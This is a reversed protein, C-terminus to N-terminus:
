AYLCTTACPHQLINLHKRLQYTRAFTRDLVSMRQNLSELGKFPGSINWEGGRVMEVEGGPVAGILCLCAFWLGIGIGFDM